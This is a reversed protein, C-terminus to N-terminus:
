QDGEADGGKLSAVEDRLAALEEDRIRVEVNLAVVRNQLHQLTAEQLAAQEDQLALAHHPNTESM